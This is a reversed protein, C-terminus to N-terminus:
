LNVKVAYSKPSLWSLQRFNCVVKVNCYIKSIVIDIIDANNVNIIILLYLLPLHQQKPMDMSWVTTDM